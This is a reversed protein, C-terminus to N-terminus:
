EELKSLRRLHQLSRMVIMALGLLLGVLTALIHAVTTIPPYRYVLSLIM